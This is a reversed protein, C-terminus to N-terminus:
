GSPAILQYIAHDQWRGAINLYKQAVGYRVFGNRELVRQSGKNHLLVGAEVRHLGLEGFAMATFQGVATTAVGRGNDASGVLYGLHCSQFPGRVIDNLTIRGVMRGSDVILHPVIVGQEFRTLAAEIVAAQGEDTYYEEPRVPEWPAMFERNTRVFEALVPADSLTM